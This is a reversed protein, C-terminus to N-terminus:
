AVGEGMAKIVDAIMPKGLDSGLLATSITDTRTVDVRSVTLELVSEVERVKGPRFTWKRGLTDFRIREDAYDHAEYAEACLAAFEHPGLTPVDPQTPEVGNIDGVNKPKRAM